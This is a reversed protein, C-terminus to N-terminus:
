EAAAQSGEALNLDALIGDSAATAEKVRKKALKVIHDLESATQIAAALADKDVDSIKKGQEALQAKIGARAISRAEKQEPTYSSRTGAAAAATFEYRAAVVMVAERAQEMTTDTEPDAADKLYKATNNRINEMWTQSLVKAEIANLTHGEVYRVPLAFEEGQITVTKTENM